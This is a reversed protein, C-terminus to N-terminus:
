RCHENLLALILGNYYSILTSVTSLANGSILDPDSCEQLRYYICCFFMGKRNSRYCLGLDKKQRM